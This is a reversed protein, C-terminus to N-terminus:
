LLAISNKAGKQFSHCVLPAYSNRGGELHDISYEVEEFQKRRQESRCLADHVALRLEDAAETERVGAVHGGQNHALGKAQVCKSISEQFLCKLTRNACICGTSQIFFSRAGSSPVYM